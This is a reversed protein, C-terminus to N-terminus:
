VLTLISTQAMDMVIKMATAKPFPPFALLGFFGVHNTDVVVFRGIRRYYHDVGPVSELIIGELIVVSEGSLNAAETGNEDVVRRLTSRLPLLCLQQGKVFTVDTTDPLVYFTPPFDMLKISNADQHITQRGEQIIARTLCGQLQISGSVQQWGQSAQHIELKAEIIKILDDDRPFNIQQPSVPSDVAAWSWSPARFRNKPRAVPDTVVWNLGETFRSRWMGALYDDGIHREFMKAIGSMAILRDDPHTWACRSYTKVLHMWQEYIEARMLKKEEGKEPLGSTRTKSDFFAWLTKLGRSYHVETPFPSWNPFTECKNMEFCEWVIQSHSFHLVRPSLVREQFVWGRDTLPGYTLRNMYFQDWMEFVMSKGSPLDVSIKGFHVEEPKRPRFLGGEPDESASAVINCSSNAYVDHMRISEQAWDESSDQIICLSDIWVYRISFRRAIIISDRFTKPLSTIPLGRRFKDITSNLLLVTPNRAWRYSLTLYNPSDAMDNPYLCLKWTDDERTGIDILRSPTYKDM